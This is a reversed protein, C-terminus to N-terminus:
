YWGGNFSIIQANLYDPATAIQYIFEAAESPTAMRGAPIEYELNMKEEQNLFSNMDTDIAGFAIANVSIGSPALEKGLAKTFSNVAGKTTSYAVECSAGENGWVSSINIIRGCKNKLFYPIIGRSMYIMSSVNTNFITNWQSDTIDQFLGTCSIGANNVLIKVDGLFPETKTLLRSIDDANGLDCQFPHCKINYKNELEEANKELLSYNGRCITILNYGKSAFIHATEKGIGRSAGTVIVYTNIM